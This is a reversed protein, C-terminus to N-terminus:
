VQPDLKLNALTRARQAASQAGTDVVYIAGLDPAVAGAPARAARAASRVAPVRRPPFLPRAAVLGHRRVLDALGASGRLKVVLRSRVLAQAAGADARGPAPAAPRAGADGTG